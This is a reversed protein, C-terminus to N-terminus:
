KLQCLTQLGFPGPWSLRRGEAPRSILMGNLLATLSATRSPLLHEPLVRFPGIDRQPSPSVVIIAATLIFWLGTHVAGRQRSSANYSAFKIASSYRCRIRM